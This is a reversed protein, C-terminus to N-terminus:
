SIRDGDNVEPEAPDGWNGIEPHYRGIYIEYRRQLM